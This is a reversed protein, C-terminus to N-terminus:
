RGGADVAVSRKCSPCILLVRRRVYPLEPKPAIEHRALAVGCAPCFPHQGQRVAEALARREAPSYSPSMRAFSAAAM